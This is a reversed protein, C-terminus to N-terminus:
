SDPHRVEILKDHPYALLLFGPIELGFLGVVGFVALVAVNLDRVDLSGQKPREHEIAAGTFCLAAWAIGAVVLSAGVADRTRDRHERVIAGSTYGDFRLYRVIEDNRVVAYHEDLRLEKVCPGSCVLTKPREALDLMFLAGKGLRYDVVTLAPDRSQAHARHAFLLVTAYCFSLV